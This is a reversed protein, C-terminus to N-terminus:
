PQCDGTVQFSCTHAIHGEDFVQVAFYGQGLFDCTVPNPFTYSLGTAGAIPNNAVGASGSPARNTM